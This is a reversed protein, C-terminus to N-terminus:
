IKNEDGHVVSSSPGEGGGMELGTPPPDTTASTASVPVAKVVTSTRRNNTYRRILFMGITLVIVGFVGLGIGVGVIASNSGSGGGVGSQKAITGDDLLSYGPSLPPPPLSPPPSPSPPSPPLPPPPAVVMRGLLPETLATITLTQASSSLLVALSEASQSAIRSLIRSADSSAVIVSLVDFSATSQLRRASLVRRSGVVTLTVASPTVELFNVLEVKYAVEDFSIISGSLTATFSVTEV